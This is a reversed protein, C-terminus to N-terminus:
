NVKILELEFTLASYPPISGRGGPGYALDQPLYVMWKDGEKMLQLVETWGAVVQTLAFTAPQGNRVSSDFEKGDIFKGTYHVTVRDNITPTKGTGSRLVLYQLGSPTVTVGAATKNKKLFDEGEKKVKDFKRQQQKGIYSQVIPGCEEEKIQLAKKNYNDIIGQYFAQLDLSDGAQSKLNGAVLVGLSYSARQAETQVKVEAQKNQGCATLYIAIVMLFMLKKM